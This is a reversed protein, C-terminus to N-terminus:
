RFKNFVFYQLSKMNRFASWHRMKGSSWNIASSRFSLVKSYKYFKYNWKTRREECIWRLRNLYKSLAVCEHTDHACLIRLHSLLLHHSAGSHFSRVLYHTTHKGNMRCFQIQENKYTHHTSAHAIISVIAWLREVNLIENNANVCSERTGTKWKKKKKARNGNKNIKKNQRTYWVDTLTHSNDCM